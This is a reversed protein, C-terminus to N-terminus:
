NAFFLRKMHDAAVKKNYLFWKRQFIFSRYSDLIWMNINWLYKDDLHKSIDVFLSILFKKWYFVSTNDSVLFKLDTLYLCHYMVLFWFMITTIDRHFLSTHLPCSWQKWPIEVLSTILTCNYTNWSFLYIYYRHYKKVIGNYKSCWCGIIGAFIETEALLM